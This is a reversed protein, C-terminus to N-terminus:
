AEMDPVTMYLLIEFDSSEMEPWRVAIKKEQKIRDWIRASEAQIIRFYHLGVQTPFEVPPYLEHVIKVGFVRQNALSCPMIKFKDRDLVLEVLRRPDEKTKIALFYENPLTLVEDTLEGVFVNKETDMNLRIKLYKAQVAGRLLSRVKKSLESFAVVPNDHDYDCVDFQDVEPCLAALEALLQRLEMYISFPTVTGPVNVLSALRAGFCNLTRLRLMQEFQIGRMNEVSFGGRTIQIVLETRSALVQSTIDRVYEQLVPSGTIVMCPPIYGPDRRPLGVDEGTAHTIKLLPLVEIDSRDDSDLLLRANVRRIPILQPNKGTNEDPREFEVVRYTKKPRWDSEGPEIVNARSSYWIPVGLSITLTGSSSAFADKIDLSPLDANGPVKVEIGSPMIVRLRDFSVRMNELEDDSMRAEIVGYAYNWSLRREMAFRDFIHKQMAQLHHPQLFLGESWHIQGNIAM